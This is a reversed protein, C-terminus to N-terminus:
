GSRRGSFFNCVNVSFAEVTYLFLKLRSGAISFGHNCGATVETMATVCGPRRPTADADGHYCGTAGTAADGTTVGEETAPSIPHDGRVAM